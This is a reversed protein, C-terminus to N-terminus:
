IHQNHVVNQECKLGLLRNMLSFLLHRFKGCYGASPFFWSDKLRSELPRAPSAKLTWDLRLPRQSLNQQVSERERKFRCWRLVIVSFLSIIMFKHLKRTELALLITPQYCNETVSSHFNTNLLFIYIRKVMFLFYFDILRM